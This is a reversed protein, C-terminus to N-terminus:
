TCLPSERAHVSFPGSKRSSLHTSSNALLDSSSMTCPTKSFLHQNQKLTNALIDMTFHPFGAIPPTDSVCIVQYLLPEVRYMVDHAPAEINFVQFYWAHVRQAVLM